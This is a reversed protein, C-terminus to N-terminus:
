WRRHYGYGIGVGVAVPPPGYSEVVYVTRGPVVMAAPAVRAQMYAIVRDSVGQQKMMTIDAATLAYASASSRIQGIIIDDSIHSQTMQIVDNISVPPHAAYYDDVAKKQRAEARDESHGALAGIGAGTAGGILAGAGAHGTAAGVLAGVGAGIAGGGLAGAETNNMSSCGCAGLLILGGLWRLRRM